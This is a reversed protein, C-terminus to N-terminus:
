RTTRPVRVRMASSMRDKPQHASMARPVTMPLGSLRRETRAADSSRASIPSPRASARLTPAYQHLKGGLILVADNGIGTRHGADDIRGDDGHGEGDDIGIREGFAVAPGGVFAVQEVGAGHFQADAIVEFGGTGPERDGTAGIHAHREVQEGAKGAVLAAVAPLLQADEAEGGDCEGGEDEGVDEANGSM